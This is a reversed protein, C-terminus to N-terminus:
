KCGALNMRNKLAALPSGGPNNRNFNRQQSISASRMWKNDRNKEINEASQKCYTNRAKKCEAVINKSATKYQKSLQKCDETGFPRYGGPDNAKDKKTKKRNASTVTQPLPNESHIVQAPKLEISKSIESSTCPASQFSVNDAADTCKFVGAQISVSMSLFIVTIPMIAFFPKELLYRRISHKASHM